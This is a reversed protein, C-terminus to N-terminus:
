VASDNLREVYREYEELSNWVAHCDSDRALAITESTYEQLGAFMSFVRMGFKSILVVNGPQIDMKVPDGTEDDYYGEGAVLVVGIDAANDRTSTRHDSLSTAVVLGGKTTVEPQPLIEILLRNGRLRIDEPALKKFMKLYKSEIKQKM